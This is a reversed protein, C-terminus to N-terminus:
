PRGASNVAAQTAQFAFEAHSAPDVVLNLEARLALDHQTGAAREAHHESQWISIRGFRKSGEAAQLRYSAINGPQQGLYDALRGPVAQVDAESGHQPCVVSIRVYSM